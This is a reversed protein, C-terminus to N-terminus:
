QELVYQMFENYAQTSGACTIKDDGGEMESFRRVNKEIRPGKSGCKCKEDWHMTVEDGSIFGGWCAEALLDFVALRGKQVGERPLEKGDADMVSAIVYPFFHFYGHECLATNGVCESFGYLNAMRDVGFFEKVFEEWNAPADKYGKLGGGGVLISGPAFSPKLGKEKAAKAVRYLESFPGNIKVRKGRHDEIMKTFWAEMDQERRKGAEIMRRRQELLAPDLGLREIEGKDEAAQLRGALAMLDAPMRENYLTHYHDPGGAVEVNFLTMMKIMM